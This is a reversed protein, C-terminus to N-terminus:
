ATDGKIEAERIALANRLEPGPDISTLAAEATHTSTLTSGTQWQLDVEKADSYLKVVTMPPSGSKLYVVDGIEM